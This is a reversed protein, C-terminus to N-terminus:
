MLTHGDPEAKILQETAIKTSAGPVNEVIVTGGLIKGLPIQIARASLDNAGGAAFPVIIRVPKSPYTQSVAPQALGLVMVGIWALKFRM